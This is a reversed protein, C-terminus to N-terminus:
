TKQNWYTLTSSQNIKLFPQYLNQIKVKSIKIIIEQSIRIWQAKIKTQAYIKIPCNAIEKASYIKKMIRFWLFSLHGIVKM